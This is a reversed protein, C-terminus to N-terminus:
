DTWDRIDIVVILFWTLIYLLVVSKGMMKGLLQQSGRVLGTGTFMLSVRAIWLSLGCSIIGSIGLVIWADKGAKLFAPALAVYNMTSTSLIIAFLQSGSIKM